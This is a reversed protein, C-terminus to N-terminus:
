KLDSEKPILDLYLATFFLESIVKTGKSTFHTYDNGALKQDVWHQMSNEGGMAKYMDWYAVGNALCTEKLKENLYPLLEYTYMVGDQSTTMDSPGIFLFTAEPIKKRVWNLNALVYRSYNDVNTSDKLYPVTNGGYQFVFVEPKLQKLMASFNTGDLKTFVTGSAGRMAVNDLQIGEPTDLTIGYFDPSIKADFEFRLNEPQVQTKITFSHYMGDNVLSDSRILKEEYFVRVATPSVANGYHVTVQNFKRFNRYTVKSYAVTFNATIVPLTDIDISDLPINLPETFRSLTTYVGYKKHEFRKQTPDFAAYRLWNESSKVDASLQEYVQKIPIFGPGGGGYIGQLRNRLYGSIRDGELQSDGYHIIRCGPTALQENLKVIFETKNEPYSIRQIKSTDIKSFDPFKKKPKTLTDSSADAPDHDIKLAPDIEEEEEDEDVTVVLQEINNVISDINEIKTESVKTEMFFTETTPYKLIADGLAFGNTEKGDSDLTQSLFTLGFLVTLAVVLFLSIKKPNM